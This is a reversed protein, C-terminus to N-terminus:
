QSQQFFGFWVTRCVDEAGGQKADKEKRRKLLERLLNGGEGVGLRADSFASSTRATRAVSGDLDWVRQSLEDGVTRSAKWVDQSVRAFWEESYDSGRRLRERSSAALEMMELGTKEVEALDIERDDSLGEGPCDRWVNNEPGLGQCTLRLTELVESGRDEALALTTAGMVCRAVASRLARLWFEGDRVRREGTIARKEETVAQFRARVYEEECDFAVRSLAATREEAAEHASVVAKGAEAGRGSGDSGDFGGSASALAQVVGTLRARDVMAEVMQAAATACTEVLRRAEGDHVEEESQFLVRRSEAVGGSGEDFDPRSQPSPESAHLAQWMRAAGDASVALLKCEAAIHAACIESVAAARANAVASVESSKECVASTTSDLEYLASRFDTTDIWADLSADAVDADEDESEDFGSMSEALELLLEKQARLAQLRNPDVDQPSTDGRVAPLARSGNASDVPPLASLLCATCEPSLRPSSDASPSAEPLICADAGGSLEVVIADLLPEADPVSYMWELEGSQVDEFGPLRLSRLTVALAEASHSENSEASSPRPSITM